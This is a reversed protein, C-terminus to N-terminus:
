RRRGPDEPTDSAAADRHGRYQYEDDFAEDLTRAV